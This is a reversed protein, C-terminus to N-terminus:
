VICSLSQLSLRSVVPISIEHDRHIVWQKATDHTENQFLICQTTENSAKHQHLFSILGYQSTLNFYRYNIIFFTDLQQRTMRGRETRANGPQERIMQRDRWSTQSRMFTPVPDLLYFTSLSCTFMLEISTFDKAWTKSHSLQHFSEIWRWHM